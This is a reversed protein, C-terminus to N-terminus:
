KHINIYNNWWEEEEIKRAQCVYKDILQYNYYANYMNEWGNKRYMTNVIWEGSDNFIYFNNPVGPIIYDAWNCQKSIHNSSEWEGIYECLNRKLEVIDNVAKSVINNELIFSHYFNGKFVGNNNKGLETFVYTGFVIGDIHLYEEKESTYHISDISIEGEFLCVISLRTRSAGKICYHNKSIRQSENFGIDIRSFDNGLVGILDINEFLPALDYEFNKISNTSNQSYAYNVLLCILVIINIVKM